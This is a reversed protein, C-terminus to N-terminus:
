KASACITPRPRYLVGGGSDNLPEIKMDLMVDNPGGTLPNKPLPEAIRSWQPEPVKFGTDSWISLGSCASM